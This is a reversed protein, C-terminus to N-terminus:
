ESDKAKRKQQRKLNGLRELSWVCPELSEMDKKSSIGRRTSNLLRSHLYDSITNNM